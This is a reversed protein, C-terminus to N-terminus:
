NYKNIICVMKDYYCYKLHKGEVIKDITAHRLYAPKMDARTCIADVGQLKGIEEVMTDYLISPSVDIDFLYQERLVASINDLSIITPNSQLADM